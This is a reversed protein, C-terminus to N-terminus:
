IPPVRTHPGAAPDPIYTGETIILGAEARQAYYKAMLENPLNGIAGAPIEAVPQRPILPVYVTQGPRLKDNSNDIVVVVSAVSAM